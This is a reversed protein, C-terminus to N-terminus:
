PVDGDKIPLYILSLHAIQAFQEDNGSPIFKLRPYYLHYCDKIRFDGIM